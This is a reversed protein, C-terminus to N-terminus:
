QTVGPAPHTPEPLVRNSVDLLHDLNNLFKSGINQATAIPDASMMCYTALSRTMEDTSIWTAFGIGHEEAIRATIELRSDALEKVCKECLQKFEFSPLEVPNKM